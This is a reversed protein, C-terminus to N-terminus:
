DDFTLGTDRLNPGIEYGKEKVWQKATKGKYNWDPALESLPLLAFDRELLAPHPITLQEDGYIEDMVLIDIDIIRPAWLKDPKRGLVVEMRKIQVLWDRPSLSSEGSVAMNLFPLNWSKPADAPLVAKSELVRSFRMHKLFPHLLSVAKQLHAARDGLNSGLGFIIM